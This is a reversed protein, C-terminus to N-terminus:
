ASLFGSSAGAGAGAALSSIGLSDASAGLTSAGTISAGFTTGGLSSFFASSSAAATWSEASSSASILFSGAESCSLARLCSTQGTLPSDSPEIPTGTLTLASPLVKKRQQLPHLLSTFASGLATTALSLWFHPRARAAGRGNWVAPSPGLIAGAPDPM